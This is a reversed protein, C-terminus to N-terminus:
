WQKISISSKFNTIDVPNHPDSSFISMTIHLRDENEMVIKTSLSTGGGNTLFVRFKTADVSDDINDITVEIYDINEDEEIFGSMGINIDMIVSDDEINDYDLKIENNIFTFRSYSAVDDLGILETLNYSTNANLSLNLVAETGFAIKPNGTQDIIRINGDSDKVYLFSPKNEGEDTFGLLLYGIEPIVDIIGKPLVPQIYFQKTKHNSM